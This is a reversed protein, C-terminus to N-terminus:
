IFFLAFYTYIGSKLEWVTGDELVGWLIECPKESVAKFFDGMFVLIGNMADWRFVREFCDLFLLGCYFEGIIIIHNFGCQAVDMLYSRISNIQLDDSQIKIGLSTAIRIRDSENAIMEAVLSPNSCTTDFENNDSLSSMSSNNKWKSRDDPLVIYCSTKPDWSSGELTGNRCLPGLYKCLRENKGQNRCKFIIDDDKKSEKESSTRYNPIEIKERRENKGDRWSTIGRFLLEQHEREPHFIHSKDRVSSNVVGNGYDQRCPGVVNEESVCNSKRTEEESSKDHLQM